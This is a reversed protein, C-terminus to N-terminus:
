VSAPMGKEQGQGTYLPQGADPLVLSNHWSSRGEAMKTMPVQTKGMQARVRSRHYQERNRVWTAFCAPLATQTALHREMQRYIVSQATDRLLTHAQHSDGKTGQQVLRLADQFLGAESLLIARALLTFEPDHSRELLGLGYKMQALTDSDLLWFRAEMDPRYQMRRAGKKEEPDRPAESAFFPEVHWAYLTGPTLDLTPLEWTSKGNAAAIASWLPEKDGEPDSLRLTMRCFAAGPIESWSLRHPPTLLATYFLPNCRPGFLGIAGEQEKNRFPSSTSNVM